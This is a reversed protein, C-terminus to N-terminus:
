RYSNAISPQGSGQIRWSEPIDPFDREQWYAHELYEQAIDSILQRRLSDSLDPLAEVALEHQRAFALAQRYGDVDAIVPRALPERWAALLEDLLGPSGQLMTEVRAQARSLFTQASDLRLRHLQWTFPQEWYPDAVMRNLLSISGGELILGDEQQRLQDVLAKLREHAEEATPIGQKVSREDLYLRRTAQLEEAAPRGSGVAIDSCCQVRDLAIVPWGTAKAIEISVATKGTCTPGWIFHM